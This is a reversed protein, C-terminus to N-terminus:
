TWRPISSPDGVGGIRYAMKEWKAGVSSSSKRLGFRNAVDPAAMLPDGAGDIGSEYDPAQHDFASAHPANQFGHKAEFEGTPPPSSARTDPTRTVADPSARARRARLALAFDHAAGVRLSAFPNHRAILAACGM